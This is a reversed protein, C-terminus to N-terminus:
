LCFSSKKKRREGEEQTREKRCFLMLFDFPFFFSFLYSLFFQLSAAAPPHTVRFPQVSGIGSKPAEGTGEKMSKSRRGMGHNCTRLTHTHARILLPFPIMQIPLLPHPHPPPPPPPLCFSFPSFFSEIKAWQRGGGGEEEGEHEEFWETVFATTIITTATGKQMQKQDRKAHFSWTDNPFFPQSLSTGHSFSRRICCKYWFPIREGREESEKGEASDSQMRMVVVVSEKREM